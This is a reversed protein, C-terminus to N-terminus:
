LETLVPVFQTRQLSTQSLEKFGGRINVINKFGYKRLISSLIVSRYGGACHIFYEQKPDLTALNQHVVDLPFNEAGMLHESDYESKRRADLLHVNKQIFIESFEPASV